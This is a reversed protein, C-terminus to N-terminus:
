RSILNSVAYLPYVEIDGYRAFNELSTRVGRRSNKEDMFIRLSQMAGRSGAKVELPIIEGDRQILYDVQANSQRKERRWRFLQAPLYCSGAKLLELGAFQEAMAGRNITKFEDSLLAGPHFGLIHQFLGTDCLIMRRYKPNIEAGLPIGNAASHFVPHVLGAMTLLKLAEKVQATNARPAAREYVFKGE